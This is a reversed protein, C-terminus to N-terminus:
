GLKRTGVYFGTSDLSARWASREGGLATRVLDVLAVGTDSGVPADKAISTPFRTEISSIGGAVSRLSATCCRDVALVLAPAGALVAYEGLVVAKGPARAIREPESEISSTMRRSPAGR